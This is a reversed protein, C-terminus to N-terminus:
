ICAPIASALPVTWLNGLQKVKKKWFLWLSIVIASVVILTDVYKLVAKQMM